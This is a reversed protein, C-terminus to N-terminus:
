NTCVSVFFTFCAFASVPQINKSNQIFPSQDADASKPITGV